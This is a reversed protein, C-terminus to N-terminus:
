LSSIISNVSQCNFRFPSQSQLVYLHLYFYNHRACLPASKNNNNNDNIGFKLVRWKAGIKCGDIYYSLKIPGFIM